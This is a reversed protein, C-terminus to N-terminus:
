ARVCKTLMRGNALRFWCRFSSVKDVRRETRTGDPLVVEIYVDDYKDDVPEADRKKNERSLLARILLLLLPCIVYCIGIIVWPVHNRCAM